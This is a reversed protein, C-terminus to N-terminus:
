RNMHRALGVTFVAVFAAVVDAPMEEVGELPNLDLGALRAVWAGIAVLAAPVGVQTTTRGVRGARDVEALDELGSALPAGVDELSVPVVDERTAQLPRDDPMPEM